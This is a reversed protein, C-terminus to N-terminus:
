TTLGLRPGQPGVGTGSWSARGASGPPRGQARLGQESATPAAAGRGHAGSSRARRRGSFVEELGHAVRGAPGFFAVDIEREAMQRRARVLIAVYTCLVPLLAVVAWWAAAWGTALAVVLPVALTSLMVSLVRRQRAITSARARSRAAPVGAHNFPRVPRSPNFPARRLCFYQTGTWGQKPVALGCETSVCLM